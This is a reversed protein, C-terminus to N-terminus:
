NLITYYRIFEDAKIYVYDEQKELIEAERLDALIVKIRAIFEDSKFNDGFIYKLTKVSFKLDNLDLLNDKKENVKILYSIVEFMFDQHTPYGPLARYLDLTYKIPLAEQIKYNMTM